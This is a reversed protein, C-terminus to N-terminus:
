GAAATNPRRVVNSPRPPRVDMASTQPRPMSGAAAAARLSSANQSQSRGLTAVRALSARLAAANSPERVLGAHPSCQTWLAPLCHKCLSAAWRLREEAGEKLCLHVAVLHAEPAGALWSTLRQAGGKVAVLHVDLVGTLWWTLGQAGLAVAVLYVETELFGGPSAKTCWDAVLYVQPDGTVCGRLWPAPAFCQGCVM